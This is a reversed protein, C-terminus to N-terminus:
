TCKRNSVRAKSLGIVKLSDFKKDIQKRLVILNTYKLKRYLNPSMQNSLSRVILMALNYLRVVSPKLRYTYSCATLRSVRDLDDSVKADAHACFHRTRDLFKADASGGDEKM